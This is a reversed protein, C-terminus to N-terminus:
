TSRSVGAWDGFGFVPTRGSRVIDALGALEDVVDADIDTYRQLLCRHGSLDQLMYSIRTRVALLWDTNPKDYTSAHEDDVQLIM